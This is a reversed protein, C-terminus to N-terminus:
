ALIQNMKNFFVKYFKRGFHELSGVSVIRDFEGTVDRYDMIEFKVQNDLNLEKAKKQAYKIQNSSLSIGLVECGSKKAIEFALGGWGCGVDLVRTNNPLLGAIVKFEKKMKLNIM